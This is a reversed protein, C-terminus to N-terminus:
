QPGTTDAFPHTIGANVANGCLSFCSETGSQPKRRISTVNIGGPLSVFLYPIDVNGSEEVLIDREEIRAHFHHHLTKKRCHGRSKAITPFPRVTLAFLNQSLKHLNLVAM